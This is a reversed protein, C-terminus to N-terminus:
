RWIHLRLHYMLRFKKLTRLNARVIIPRHHARQRADADVRSAAKNPHHIDAKSCACLPSLDSMAGHGFIQVPVSTAGEGFHGFSFLRGFAARSIPDNDSILRSTTGTRQEQPSLGHLWDGRVRAAAHGM